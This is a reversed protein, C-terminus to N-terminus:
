NNVAFTDTDVRAIEAAEVPGVDVEDAVGDLLECGVTDDRVALLNASVLLSGIINHDPRGTLKWL